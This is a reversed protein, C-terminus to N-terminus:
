RKLFMACCKGSDSCIDCDIDFEDLGYIEFDSDVLTEKNTNCLLAIKATQEGAGNWIIRHEEDGTLLSFGRDEDEDFEGLSMCIQNKSLPLKAELTAGALSDEPRFVVEETHRLTGPKDVLDNLVTTVQTTPDNKIINLVQLIIPILIALIAMAVIAAILLKFTSYAQGNENM